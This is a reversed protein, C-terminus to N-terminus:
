PSGGSPTLPEPSRARRRWTGFTTVRRRRRLFRHLADLADASLGAWEKPKRRTVYFAVRSVFRDV